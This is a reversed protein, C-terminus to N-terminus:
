RGRAGWALASGPQAVDRAPPSIQGPRCIYYLILFCGILGTFETQKQHRADAKYKNAMDTFVLRMIKTTHIILRDANLHFCFARDNDRKEPQSIIQKNM